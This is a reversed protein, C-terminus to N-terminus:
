SSTNKHIRALYEQETQGPTPIFETKGLCKLTDLDMITSYGSRCIIREAGLLISALEASELHSVITINNVTQTQKEKQPKGQVIITKKSSNKFREILEKEFISRQPEVGSLICVTNYEENPVVNESLSFRSLTGIFVANKPLTYKHVLDGSLNSEGEYDPIWCEDYKSIFFRHFRYFFGEVFKLGKPMKVMIQHTIYVSHIHKNWMGFRNDSIVMDFNRTKLLKKLWRHESIIKALIKPACRIMAGTQSKGKSYRVPYSSYEVFSLTPFEQRLFELPFGDAVITIKYGKDTLHKILPVCRSAHGLGWNLPCILVEGGLGRESRVGLEEGNQLPYSQLPPIPNTENAINRKKSKKM